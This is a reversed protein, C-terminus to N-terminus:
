LKDLRYKEIMRDLATRWDIQQRWGTEMLKLNNGILLPPDNEPVAIAGYEPVIEPNLYKVCHEILDSISVPHGSSINFEGQVSTKCALHFFASAAEEVPMFDRYQRGHSCLVPQNSLLSNIVSPLLRNAFEGHGFPFYLRGWAWELGSGKAFAKTIRRTADKCQGYISSPATPTVDETCYGHSWDYEACTGAIVVRRGGHDNFTKLLQVTAISWEFNEMAHWYKGPTTYWALHILIDARSESCVKQCDAETLLDAKIWKVSANISSPQAKSSVAFIEHNTSLLQDLVYRGIFGTGGTLLIRM